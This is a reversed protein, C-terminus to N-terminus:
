FIIYDIVSKIETFSFLDEGGSSYSSQSSSAYEDSRQSQSGQPDELTIVDPTLLKIKEEIHEALQRRDTPSVGVDEEAISKRFVPIIHMPIYIEKLLDIDTITQMKAHDTAETIAVTLLEKVEDLTISTQAQSRFRGLSDLNYWCGDLYRVAIWHGGADPTHLIFGIFEYGDDSPLVNEINGTKYGAGKVNKSEIVGRIAGDDMEERQEEFLCTIQNLWNIDAFKSAEKGDREDFLMMILAQFGCQTGSQSFWANKTFFSSKKSCQDDDGYSNSDPQSQSLIDQVGPDNTLIAEVISNLDRYEDQLAKLQGDDLDFGTVDKIGARKDVRSRKVNTIEGWSEERKLNPGILAWDYDRKLDVWAQILAKLRLKKANGPRPDDSENERRPETKVLLPNYESRPKPKVLPNSETQQQQLQLVRQARKQRDYVQLGQDCEYSYNKDNLHAWQILRPIEIVSVVPKAFLNQVGFLNKRITEVIKTCSVNLTSTSAHDEHEILYTIFDAFFDSSDTGEQPVWFSFASPPDWDFLWLYNDWKKYLLGETSGTLFTHDDAEKVDLRIEKGESEFTLYLGGNRADLYTPFRPLYVFFTNKEGSGLVISPNSYNGQLNIGCLGLWFKREDFQKSQLAKADAEDKLRKKHRNFEDRNKYFRLTDNLDERHMLITPPNDKFKLHGFHLTRSGDSLVRQWKETSGDYLSVVDWQKPEILERKLLQMKNKKFNYESVYYPSQVEAPLEVESGGTSAMDYAKGLNQRFANGSIGKALEILDKNPNGEVWDFFHQEGADLQYHIYQIAAVFTMFVDKNTNTSKAIIEYDAGRERNMTNIMKREDRIRGIEEKKAKQQELARKIAERRAANQATEYNVLQDYWKRYKDNNRKVEEQKEGKKIESYTLNVLRAVLDNDYAGRFAPLSIGDEFNEDIIDNRLLATYENSTTVEKQNPYHEKVFKSFLLERQEDKIDDHMLSKIIAEDWHREYKDSLTELTSDLISESIKKAQKNSLTAQVFDEYESFLPYARKVVNCWVVFGKKKIVRTRRPKADEIDATTPSAADNLALAEEASM